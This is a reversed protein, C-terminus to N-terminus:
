LNIDAPLVHETFDLLPYHGRSVFYYFLISAVCLSYKYTLTGAPM